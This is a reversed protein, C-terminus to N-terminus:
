HRLVSMVSHLTQVIGWLFPLMVVAWAGIIKWNQAKTEAQM